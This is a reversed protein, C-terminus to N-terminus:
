LPDIGRVYFTRAATTQTADLLLTVYRACIDKFVEMGATTRATNTNAFGGTADADFTYAQVATDATLRSPKVALAASNLAPGYVQVNRFVGGLDTEASVAPSADKAITVTKWSGLRLGM